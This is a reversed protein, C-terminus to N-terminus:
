LSLGGDVAVTQGQVMEMGPQSLAEVANVADEFQVGRGSPNAAAAGELRQQWSDPFMSRFAPTDLPGPSVTNARVGKGALEVALYRILTEGLAKASGLSGYNPIVMKSGRSSLFFVTSGPGLLPLAQQVLFVLATGNVTIVESLAEADMELLPGTVTRAACHVLQDLSDVEASVQKILERAGEPPGVDAKILHARAGNSEVAAAAERAAEDDAHYNIFVDNGPRAFREAIARGIGSSGGTICISM